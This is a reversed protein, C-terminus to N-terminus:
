QSEQFDMFSLDWMSCPSAFFFCCSYFCFFYVKLISNKVRWIPLIDFCQYCETSSLIHPSSFEWVNSPSIVLQSLLTAPDKLIYYIRKVCYIPDKKYFYFHWYMFIGTGIHVFISITADTTTPLPWIPFYDPLKREMCRQKGPTM